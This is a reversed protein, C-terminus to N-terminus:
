SVLRSRFSHNDHSFLKSFFLELGFHHTRALRDQHVKEGGPTTRALHHRGNKVLEILFLILDLEALDVDVLLRVEGGHEADVRDRREGDHLIAVREGAHDAHM